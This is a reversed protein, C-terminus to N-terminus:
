AAREHVGAWGCIVQGSQILKLIKAWAGDPTAYLDAPHLAHTIMLLVGRLKRARAVVERPATVEYIPEPPTEVTVSILDDALWASLGPLPRHLRLKPGPPVMGLSTFQAAYGPHWTGRLPELFIMELGPNLLM